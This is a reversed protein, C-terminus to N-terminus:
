EFLSDLLVRFSINYDRIACERAKTNPEIGAVNWGRKKIGGLFAGTGCGIDLLTKSKPNLNEILKIKRRIAIKKILHYIKSFLGVTTNSHSIYDDSEYYKGISISDPRPNTFMLGCNRCTVINFEEKSVSFDKSRLFLEFDSSSCIPCENLQEIM